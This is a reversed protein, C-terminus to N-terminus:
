SEAGEVDAEVAEPLTFLFCSGQGVGESELRITGRYMEVIRKVLALGLGAGESTPNLKEFLGFVKDNYRPDIGIGNDRVFFVTQRGKQEAGIAICPAPQDGMFKVANEMLNQWIEILRSRDGYLSIPEDSVRVEVGREAISGAVMCLSEEALERFTVRVPLNVVRGIRSMELLEELLHGMKDAANRMFLMDKEIREADAHALDQMLYGLFTKFTVLPSKLDHSIMYTFREMEATKERLERQMLMIRTADLLTGFLAIVEDSENRETEGNLIV